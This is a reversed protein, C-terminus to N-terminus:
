RKSKFFNKLIDACDYELVGQIVEIQHNFSNHNTLNLVTGCSGSKDDSAGYVIRDIKSWILAGTCMACPELTVYITCNKLYKENLTACAATIAIIEAHATPDCLSEVQNFGRGVITNDRVIIAGVPVENHKMAKEAEYLAQIMYKQHYEIIPSSTKGM